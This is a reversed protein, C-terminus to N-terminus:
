AVSKMSILRGFLDSIEPLQNLTIKFAGPKVSRALTFRVERECRSCPPFVSGRLLTVEQPLRHQPHQVHYVGHQPVIDGNIFRKGKEGKPRKKAPAPEPGEPEPQPEPTHAGEPQEPNERSYILHIGARKKARNFM